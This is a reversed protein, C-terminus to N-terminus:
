AVEVPNTTPLKMSRSPATRTEETSSTTKEGRSYINKTHTLDFRNSTVYNGEM